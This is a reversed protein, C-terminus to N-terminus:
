LLNKQKAIWETVVLDGDEGVESEGHLESDDHVQSLPFWIDEGDVEVLIAKETKAKLRQVGLSFGDSNQFRTM